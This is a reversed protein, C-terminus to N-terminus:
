LDDGSKAGKSELFKAIKQHGNKTANDLCTNGWDGNKANVDAGKDLLMKIIEIYNPEENEAINKKNAILMLSTEDHQNTTNPNAGQDLLIAVVKLDGDMVALHLPTFGDMNALDITPKKSKTAKLLSSLGEINNSMVAVHLPTNGKDNKVDLNINADILIQLIDLAAKKRIVAWHIPMYRNADAAEYNAGGEMFIRSAVIRNNKLALSLIPQQLM